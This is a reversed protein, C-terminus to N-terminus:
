PMALCYGAVDFLSNLGGQVSGLHHSSRPSHGRHTSIKTCGKPLSVFVEGSFEVSGFGSGLRLWAPAGKGM